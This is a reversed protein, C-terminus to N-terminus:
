SLQAALAHRAYARVDADGDEIALGLADRAAQESAAWRTLTLVAAKRVDLHQDTPARSLTPVAVKPAAGALARAAGERVQWASETLARQVHVLDDGDWGVAGLASLAAARVLPDSDGVLRRVADAGARLTSLGNAAAIRVERNDDGAAAAVGDPDDISVLARVAEIRVRHDADALAQRYQGQDGVRRASLLYLAVARVVPDVSKLQGAVDEPVPVVEVLERVGDAAVRRVESDDDGLAGLLACAYGDPLHEVLTSVATRRVGTDPDSLFDALEAVTPSELALV